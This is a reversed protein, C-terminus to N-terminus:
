VVSKRDIYQRIHRPTIDSVGKVSSDGQLFDLYRAIDHKYAEISNSSLNREVRLFTIFDSLFSEM